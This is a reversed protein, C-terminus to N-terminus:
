VLGAYEADLGLGAIIEGSVDFVFGTSTVQQVTLGDLTVTSNAGYRVQVGGVIQTISLDSFQDVGPAGSIVIRDGQAANFGQIRDYNDGIRLVFQDAGLGGAMTDKGLGGILVDNGADGFVRDANAGGLLLDRGAGGRLVDSGFDGALLDNGVGGLLTDRGLGGNLVDNGAKGILMDSGGMGKLVNIAATGDIREAADHGTARTFVVVDAAFPDIKAHMSSGTGVIPWYGRFGSQDEAPDYSLVASDVRVVNSHDPSGHFNIDRNTATVHLKNGVEANLSSFVIAHRTDYIELNTMRSGFAEYLQVGYGNGDGGKNHAGRVLLDDARLELSSRIDFGHSPADIVSIHALSAGKVGQVYVASLSDYAPLTNIFNNANATGFPFTVTFNGLAVGTLMDITHVKATGADMPYAIAQKLFVTNGEIREIEAITERFPNAAAKAPDVNSWGNAAMYEATNDAAIYLTDGANLAGVDALTITKAGAEVADTATGILTKVGARVEIANDEQGAALEFRLITGAESEGDLTIGSRRIEINEDFVHTGNALVIRTGEPASEILANIDRATAGVAVRVLLGTGDADTEITSTALSAGWQVEGAVATM